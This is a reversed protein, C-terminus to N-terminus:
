NLMPSSPMRGTSLSRLYEAIRELDEAVCLRSVDDDAVRDLTFHLTDDSFEFVQVSYKATKIAEQTM